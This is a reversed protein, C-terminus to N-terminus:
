AATRPAANPVSPMAQAPTSSAPRALLVGLLLAILHGENFTQFHSSFLSTACWGALLGLALTRYPARAPQRTAAILWWAFALLGLLGAEVWLFLYQNHPDTSAIARWGSQSKARQSYEAAFAGLGYGRLPREAILNVTGRWMVQRVGMSTLEPAQGFSGLEALGKGFRAQLQPSAAYAMIALLPVVLLAVWRRLGHLGLVVSAAFAVLLLVHGSRGTEVFLLRLLLILAAVGLAIQASRGSFQRTVLLMCALYAGVALFMAQTVNNRLLVLQPANADRTLAVENHLVTLVLVALVAIAVLVAAVTRQFRADDFLALAVFCLLLSRWGWLAALAHPLPAASFLAALALVGLLIGIARGFPERWVRRLRAGADPSVAFACLMIAAALNVLPPSIATGVLAVLAAWRAVPLALARARVPETAASVANM